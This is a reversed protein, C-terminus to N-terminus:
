VLSKTSMIMPIFFSRPFSFHDHSYVITYSEISDLVYLYSDCPATAPSEVWLPPIGCDYPLVCPLSRSVVDGFLRHV